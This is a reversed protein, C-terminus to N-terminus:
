ISQLTMVAKIGFNRNASLGWDYPTRFYRVRESLHPKIAEDTDDDGDDCIIIEFDKYTQKLASPLSRTLLLERRKYTPIVITIKPAMTRRNNSAGM